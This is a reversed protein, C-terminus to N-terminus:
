DKHKLEPVTIEFMNDIMKHILRAFENDALTYHMEKGDKKSEIIKVQKLLKLHHSVAPASMNVAESIDNVCEKTHCLFWLIRLRTPDSLVSLINTLEEAQEYSPLKNLLDDLNNTHNHYNSM